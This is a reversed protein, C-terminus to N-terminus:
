NASEVLADRKVMVDVFRVVIVMSVVLGVTAMVGALLIKSIGLAEGLYLGFFTGSIVIGAVIIPAVLMVKMNTARRRARSAVKTTPIM